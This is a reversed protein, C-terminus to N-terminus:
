GLLGLLIWIAMAGSFIIGAVLRMKFWFINGGQISKKGYLSLGAKANEFDEIGMARARM